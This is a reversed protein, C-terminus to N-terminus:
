WGACLHVPGIGLAFVLLLREPEEDTNM